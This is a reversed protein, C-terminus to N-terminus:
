DLKTGECCMLDKLANIVQRNFNYKDRQYVVKEIMLINNFTYSTLIEPVSNNLM